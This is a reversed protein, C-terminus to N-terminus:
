DKPAQLISYGNDLRKVVRFGNHIHAKWSPTNEVSVSSCLILGASQCAKKLSAIIQNGLGNGRAKSAVVLGLYAEGIFFYRLFFIGELDSGRKVGYVSFGGSSLVRYISHYSFKFPSFYKREEDNLSVLFELISAVDDINLKIFSYSHACEYNCVNKDIEEKIKKFILSVFLSNVAEIIAWLSPM